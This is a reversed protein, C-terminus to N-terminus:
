QRPKYLVTVPFKGCRFNQLQDNDELVNFYTTYTFASNACIFMFQTLKIQFLYRNNFFYEIYNVNHLIRFYNRSLLQKSASVAWRFDDHVVRLQIIIDTQTRIKTTSLHHKNYNRRPSQVEQVFSLQRQSFRRFCTFDISLQQFIILYFTFYRILKSGQQALVVVEHLNEFNQGM